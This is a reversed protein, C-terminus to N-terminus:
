IWRIFCFECYWISLHILQHYVILILFLKIKLEDTIGNIIITVTM